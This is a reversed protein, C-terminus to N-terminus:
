HPKRSREKSDGLTKQLKGITKQAIGKGEM